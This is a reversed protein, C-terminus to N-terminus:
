RANSSGQIWLERFAWHLVLLCPHRKTRFSVVFLYLIVAVQGWYVEVFDWVLQACVAVKWTAACLLAHLMATLSYSFVQSCEEIAPLTLSDRLCVCSSSQHLYLAVMM